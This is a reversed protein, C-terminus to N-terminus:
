VTAAESHEFEPLKKTLLFWAYIASFLFFM